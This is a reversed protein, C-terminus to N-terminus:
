EEICHAATLIWQASVISGGCWIYNTTKSSIGIQWPYENMEVKEGGVIRKM